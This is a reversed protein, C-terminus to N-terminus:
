PRGGQQRDDPKELTFGQVVTELANALELLRGTSEAMEQIASLQQETAASVEETSAANDQSLRSIEDIANVMRGSNELQIESLGAIENAKRETEKVTKVIEDFAVAAVGAHRNGSKITRSSDLISEHVKQSEERLAILMETIDGASQSTSESLRRVEDAVVAFGKGYEGARVAEISANLALLNTQRAVDVIFDAVKGARQLRSNFQDFRKGLEELREFYEKMLEILAAAMEAGNRATITTDRAAQATEKASSTVLGMSVATERIIGSGKELMVAQNEAGRAIQLIANAVERTSISIESATGNIDRASEAVKCSSKRIHNVLELLSKRMGEISEALEHTEDPFTSAPLSSDVDLDGKSIAKASNVLVGINRSFKRSFLWGLVLGVTLAVIVSLLHSAAASYGLLSVAGPALAVVAVVAVCGLIFKNGIQIRM